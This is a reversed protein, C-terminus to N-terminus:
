VHFATINADSSTEVNLREVNYFFQYRVRQWITFTLLVVFGPLFHFIKVAYSVVASGRQAAPASTNVRSGGKKLVTKGDM